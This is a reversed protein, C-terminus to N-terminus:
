GVKELRKYLFAFGNGHWFLIKLKNRDRNYFVFVSDKTQEDFVDFIIACLGDVGKRFDVCDHHLWIKTASVTLEMM